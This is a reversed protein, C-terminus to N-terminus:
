VNRLLLATPPVTKAPFLSAHVDGSGLPNQIGFWDSLDEFLARVVPADSSCRPVRQWDLSSLAEKGQRTEDYTVDGRAALHELYHKPHREHRWWTYGSVSQKTQNELACTPLWAPDNTEFQEVDTPHVLM